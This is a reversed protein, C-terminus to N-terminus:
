KQQRMSLHFCTWDCFYCAPEFEQAFIEMQHLKTRLFHPWALTSCLVRRRLYGLSGLSWDDLPLQNLDQNPFWAYKKWLFIFKRLGPNLSLKPSNSINKMCFYLQLLLGPHQSFGNVQPWWWLISILCYHSNSLQFNLFWIRGM